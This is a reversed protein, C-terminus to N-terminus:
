DWRSDESLVSSKVDSIQDCLAAYVELGTKFWEELDEPSVLHDRQYLLLFGEGAELSTKEDLLGFLQQDFQLEAGTAILRHGHQIVDRGRIRAAIRDWSSAPVLAFHPFELRPSRVALVTQRTTVDEYGPKDCAYDFVAVTADGCSQEIVNKCERRLASAWGPSLMQDVAQQTIMGEHTLRFSTSWGLVNVPATPRFSLGLRTAAQQMAQQRANEHNRVESIDRLALGTISIIACVGFGIASNNFGFAIAGMLSGLGVLTGILWILTQRTMM